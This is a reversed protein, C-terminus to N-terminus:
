SNIIGELTKNDMERIERSYCMGVCFWTIMSYLSARNCGAPGLELISILILLSGAKVLFNNSRFLGKFVAPMLILLHLLLYIIGGKLIMALYGTEMSRRQNGNLEVIEINGYYTGNGGRGWIYDFPTGAFDKFMAQEVGERSSTLGENLRSELFTFREIFSTKILFVYSIGFLISVVVLFLYKRKVGFQILFGYLILTFIVSIGISFILNRRAFYASVFIALGLTILSIIQFIKKQFPITLIVLSTPLYLLKIEFEVMGSFISFESPIFNSNVIPMLFVLDLIIFAIMYIMIWKFLKRYFYANAGFIIVMPVIVFPIFGFRFEIIYLLFDKIGQLVFVGRIFVFIAWILYLRFIIKINKNPYLCSLNFKRIAAIMFFLGIYCFIAGVYNIPYFVPLLFGFTYLSIGWFLYNAKTQNRGYIEIPKIM